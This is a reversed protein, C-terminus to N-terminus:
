LPKLGCHLSILGNSLRKFDVRSFGTELLHSALAEPSLFRRVSEALYRFPDAHGTIAKGFSPMVSFSYWHYLSRLLFSQPISFEMIILQGGPHLVRFMEALGTKIHTLNRVGYGVLVADFTSDAFCLKEADGEVWSIRDAWPAHGAKKRGATMMSRSLDCVVTLGRYGPKKQVRRAFEGTGGCLDLIKGNNQIDLRCLCIKRWRTHLGFSMLFDALDYQEGIADFYRIIRERKESSLNGSM